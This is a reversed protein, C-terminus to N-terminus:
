QDPAESSRLWRLDAAIEVKAVALNHAANQKLRPADTMHYESEAVRIDSLEGDIRGRAAVEPLLGSNSYRNLDSLISLQWLAFVGLACILVLM